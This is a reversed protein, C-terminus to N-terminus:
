PDGATKSMKGYAPTTRILVSNASQLQAEYNENEVMLTEIEYIKHSNSCFIRLIQKNVVKLQPVEDGPGRGPSWGQVRSFFDLLLNNVFYSLTCM